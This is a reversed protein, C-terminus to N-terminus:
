FTINSILSKLTDQMIQGKIDAAESNKGYGVPIEFHLKLTWDGDIKLQKETPDSHLTPISNGRNKRRADSEVLLKTLKPQSINGGLALTVFRFSSRTAGGLVGGLVRQAVEKADVNNIGQTTITRSMDVLGSVGGLLSNLARINFKGFCTVSMDGKRTIYGDAMVMRYITDGDPAVAQTGPLFILMENDYRFATQAKKFRLPKNKTFKKAKELFAFGSIEGDSASITGTATISGANFSMGGVRMKLEAKGLLKGASSPSIEKFIRELSLEKIACSAGWRSSSLDYAFGGSLLGNGIYCSFDEIMLYSDSCYFPANIHELKLGKIDIESSKVTGNVVFDNFPCDCKVTADVKGRVSKKMTDPAFRMLKGIDIDKGTMEAEAHWEGNKKYLSAKGEAEGEPLSAKITQCTLHALGANGSIKVEPIYATSIRLPSLKLNGTFLPEAISGTVKCDAYALGQINRVRPLHRRTVEYINIKEASLNADIMSSALSSGITVRGDATGKGGCIEFKMRNLNVVDKTGDANGTFSDFHFTRWLFRSKIFNGSWHMGQGISYLKINGSMKGKIDEQMGFLGNIVNASLGDFDAEWCWDTKGKVAARVHSNLTGCPTTIVLHNGTIVNNKYHLDTSASNIQLGKMITGSGSTLMADVNPNSLTGSAKFDGNIATKLNIDDIFTLLSEFRETQMNRVSGTINFGRSRKIDNVKGNLKVAAGNWVASLSRVEANGSGLSYSGDLKIDSITGFKGATVQKSFFTGSINPQKLPGSITFDANLDAKVGTPLKVAQRFNDTQMDRIHGTLQLAPNRKTNDFSGSANIKAGNWVASLSRVEANGSGLSYSGDLKIDSITGFKGATVQKSSINGGLKLQKFQGTVSADLSVHGKVGAKKLAPIANHLEELAFEAVSFKLNNQVNDAFALVGSLSLPKGNHTASFNLNGSSNGSFVATGKLGKFAIRDYTIDSPLLEIGGTLANLNGKLKVRAGAINGQPLAEIGNLQKKFQETLQALKLKQTKLDIDVYKGPVKGDFKVYGTLASSSLNGKNFFAELKKNEYKWSFSLTELPIGRLLANKFSLSGATKVDKSNGSFTFDSTLMGRIGYARIEPFVEAIKSLNLKNTSIELDTKPYVAGDVEATGDDFNLELGDATWSDDRKLVDGEITFPAINGVEGKINLSYSQSNDIDVTSDDIKLAGYKTYIVSNNLIATSIIIESPGPMDTHPILKNFKDISTIAGDAELTLKLTRKIASAAPSLSIKIERFSILDEGDRRLTVNKAYLGTLPNGTFPSSDFKVNLKKEIMPLAYDRATDALFTIKSLGFLAAACVTLLLAVAALLRKSLTKPRRM